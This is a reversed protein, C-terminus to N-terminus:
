GCDPSGVPETSGFAQFVEAEVPQEISPVEPVEAIEAASVATAVSSGAAVLIGLLVLMGALERAERRWMIGWGKLM